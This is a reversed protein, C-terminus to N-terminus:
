PPPAAPSVGGESLHIKASVHGDGPSQRSRQLPSLRHAARDDLDKQLVLNLPCSLRESLFLDSLELAKLDGRPNMGDKGVRRIQDVETGRDIMLPLPGHARKMILQLTGLSEPKRIHHDMRPRVFAGPDILTEGPDDASEIREELARPAVRDLDKQFIVGPGPIHHSRPELLQSGDEIPKLLRISHADTEVSAM